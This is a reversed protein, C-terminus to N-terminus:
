QGVFRIPTEKTEDEGTEANKKATKIHCTAGATETASGQTPVNTTGDQSVLLWCKDQNWEIAVCKADRM